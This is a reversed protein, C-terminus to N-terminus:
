AEAEESHKKSHTSDIQLFELFQKLFIYVVSLVVGLVICIFLILVSRPASTKTPVVVPEIITFVPTTEKVQIEQTEVKSALESYISYALDFDYQMKKIKIRATESSTNTNKDLFQALEFQISDFEMQKVHLREQLFNLQDQAKKIKLDIIEKQLLEQVKLALSAALKAEPMKVVLTLYGEEQNVVLTAQGKLREILEKDSKTLSLLTDDNVTAPEATSDPSSGGLIVGPLGITYKRILSLVSPKHMESYYKKFTIREGKHFVGELESNILEQQFPVGQLIRPYLVPSIGSNSSLGGLNIGAISALGSLGKGGIPSSEESSQPVMTTTATFEKPSILGIIIGLIAFIIATRIVLRRGSYLTRLFEIISQNITGKYKISDM